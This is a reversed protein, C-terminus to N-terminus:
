VLKRIVAVFEAMIMATAGWIAHHGALYCPTDICEGTAMTIPLRAPYANDSFIRLPVEIIHDVEKKDPAFLPQKPMIGIFPSVLYNSPPIYLDTLKGSVEVEDRGIGIEEEAERLATEMMNADGAEYRGGPFAIQGSHVGDYQPRKIFVTHAEGEDGPYVLILVASKVPDNGTGMNRIEERRIDPAMLLQAEQGPLDNFGYSSIHQIFRNFKM